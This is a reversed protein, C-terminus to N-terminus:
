QPFGYKGANHLLGSPKQGPSWAGSRASLGFFRDGRPLKILEFLTSQSRGGVADLVIDAKKAFGAAAELEIVEDAGRERVRTASASTRATGIVRAGFSRAIQVAFAGVNDAAGDIVVTQGTAVHARDLMQWAMVAAVPLSAAQIDTLQNKRPALM